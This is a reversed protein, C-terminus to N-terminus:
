KMKKLTKALNLERYKTLDSKNLGQIGKKSKDKDKSKLAQLESDIEGMSIREGRKKQLKKRLSGPRKIADKIWYKSKKSESLYESSNMEFDKCMTELEESSMEELESMKWGCDCLHSMMQDRSIPSNWSEFTKLHKM